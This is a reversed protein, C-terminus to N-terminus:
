VIKHCQGQPIRILNNIINMRKSVCVVGQNLDKKTVCHTTSCIRIVSQNTKMCCSEKMMWHLMDQHANIKNLLKRARAKYIKPVSKIVEQEITAQLSKKKLPKRRLNKTRMKEDAGLSPGLLLVRELRSVRALRLDSSPRKRADISQDTTLSADLQSALNTSNVSKM